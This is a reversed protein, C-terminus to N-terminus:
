VKFIRVVMLLSPNREFMQKLTNVDGNEAALLFKQQESPDEPMMEQDDEEWGSVFM